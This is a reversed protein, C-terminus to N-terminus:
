SGSDYATEILYFDSNVETKWARFPILQPIQYEGLERFQYRVHRSLELYTPHLLPLFTSEFQDASFRIEGSTDPWHRASLAIWSPSTMGKLREEKLVLIGCLNLPEKLNGLLSWYFDGLSHVRKQIRTPSLRTFEIPRRGLQTSIIYGTLDDTVLRCGNDFARNKKLWAATSDMWQYDRGVPTPSLQFRLRGRWPYEHPLALCLIVFGTLFLLSKKPVEFRILFIKVGEVFMISLPFAYLIRYAVETGLFLSYLAVFPPFVLSFVPALTFLSFLPSLRLFAVALILSVLGHIGFTEMYRSKMKFINLFGLRNVEWIDFASYLSPLKTTFLFGLVLGVILTGAFGKWSVRKLFGSSYYTAALLVFHLLTQPHNSIMVLFLLAWRFLRGLEQPKGRNLESLAASLATMALPTSSLAYYRIGFLNTGFLCLFAIAHLKAWNKEVGYAMVFRYLQYSVLFQWFASLVSAVSRRSLLDVQGLFTWEWFYAFKEATHHDRIYHCNEWLIIRRFHEWPDSPYELYVGPLLLIVFVSFWFAIAKWDFKRFHKAGFYLALGLNFFHLGWFIFRLATVPIPFLYFVGYLLIYPVFFAWSFYDTLNLSSACFKRFNM